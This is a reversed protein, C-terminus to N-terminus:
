QIVGDFVRAVAGTMLIHDDAERWHFDLAGGDMVVRAKREALGKKVAAVHAACAGSGCAMTEGAGREWVRMRLETSSNMQVFEINARNPFLPDNELPPGLKKVDLSEVGEVFLVAHPNGVNVGVARANRGALPMDMTDAERSLPIDRWGFKPVGM